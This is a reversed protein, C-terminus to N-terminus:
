LAARFANHNLYIVKKIDSQNFERTIKVNATLNLMRPAIFSYNLTPNLDEPIHRRTTPNTTISTYLAIPGESIDPFM